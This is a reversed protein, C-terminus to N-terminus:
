AEEPEDATPEEPKHAEPEVGGLEGAPLVPPNKLSPAPDGQVPIETDETEEAAGRLVFEWGRNNVAHLGREKAAAVEEATADEARVIEGGLAHLKPILHIPMM